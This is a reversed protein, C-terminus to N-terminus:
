KTRSTFHVVAERDYDVWVRPSECHCYTLSSGCNNDVTRMGVEIRKGNESRYAMFDREDRAIDPVDVVRNPDHAIREVKVPEPKDTSIDTKSVSYGEIQVGNAVAEHILAIHAASLRGRGIVEIHGNKFLWEKPKM